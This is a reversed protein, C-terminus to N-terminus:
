GHSSSVTLVIKGIHEGSEMLAHAKSAEALPFQAYIPPPRLTGSGFLPWVHTRLAKAIRAKNELPQPRLTSGTIKLRKQMLARLDLEAKSGALTAIQSIRGEMAAAAVNRPFYEGGVIDLIVDAGKQGTAELVAAVFDQERYNIAKDAGLALCA